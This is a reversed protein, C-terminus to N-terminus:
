IKRLPFSFNIFNFSQQCLLKFPVVFYSLVFIACRCLFFKWSNQKEFCLFLWIASLLIINKWEGYIRQVIIYSFIHTIFARSFWPTPKENNRKLLTNPYWYSFNAFSLISLFYAFTHYIVRCLQFFIIFYESNIKLCRKEFTHWCNHKLKCVLFHTLDIM